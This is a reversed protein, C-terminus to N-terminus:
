RGPAGVDMRSNRERRPRTETEPKWAALRENAMKCYEEAIEIGIWSRGLMKAAVATTGSGMFPDLIIRAGTTEICRKPIEVPFPAPHKNNRDQNITWLDTFCEDIEWVDGFGCAAKPRKPDTIALKFNPKCILYIVECTPLYYQINFNIGGARQWIIPQRVPFGKIIDEHNQLLGKQVRWKHNYFIAGNDTLLRMMSTLCRRQWNVYDEHPMDDTNGGAYGRLLAANKWRGGGSGRMGGGSSNRLNYPPSTVILDISNEPMQDMIEICDGQHIRNIWANIDMTVVIGKQNYKSIQGCVSQERALEVHM